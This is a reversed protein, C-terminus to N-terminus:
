VEYDGYNKGVSHQQKQEVTNCHITFELFKQVTKTVWCLLMVEPELFPKDDLLFCNVEIINM